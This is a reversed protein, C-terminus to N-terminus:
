GAARRYGGPTSKHQKAAQALDTPTQAGDAVLVIGGKGSSQCPATVRAPACDQGPDFLVDDWAMETVLFDGLGRAWSALYKKPFSFSM